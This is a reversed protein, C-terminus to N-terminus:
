YNAYTLEKLQDRLLNQWASEQTRYNDFESQLMQAMAPDGYDKVSEIMSRYGISEIAAGVLETIFTSDGHGKEQMSWNGMMKMGMTITDHGARLTEPMDGNIAAVTMYGTLDRAMERLNSVMIFLEESDEYIYSWAESLWGPVPPRYTPVYCTPAENGEETSLLGSEALKKDSVALSNALDHNLRQKADADSLGPYKAHLDDSSTNAANNRFATQEFDIHALLYNPLANDQEAQAAQKLDILAQEKDTYREAMYLRFWLASNRPQM